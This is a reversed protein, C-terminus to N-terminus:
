CSHIQDMDKMILDAVLILGETVRISSNFRVSNLAMVLYEFTENNEVNYLLDIDQRDMNSIRSFANLEWCMRSLRHIREFDNPTSKEHRSLMKIMGKFKEIVEVSLFSSMTIFFLGNEIHFAVGNAPGASANKTGCEYHSM